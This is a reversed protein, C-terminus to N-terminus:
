SIQWVAPLHWFCLLQLLWVLLCLSWPAFVSGLRPQCIIRLRQRGNQAGPFTLLNQGVLLIHANTCHQGYYCDAISIMNDDSISALLLNSHVLVTSVSSRHLGAPALLVLLVQLIDGNVKTCLKIGCSSLKFCCFCRCLLSLLATCCCFRLQNCCPKTAQGLHSWSCFLEDDVACLADLLGFLWTDQWTYQILM